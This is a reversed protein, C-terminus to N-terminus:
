APTTRSKRAMAELKPLPCAAQRCGACGSACGPARFSAVLGRLAWAAAAAVAMLVAALQLSM